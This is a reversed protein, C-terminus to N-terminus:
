QAAFGSYVTARDVVHVHRCAPSSQGSVGSCHLYRGSAAQNRRVQKDYEDCPILKM